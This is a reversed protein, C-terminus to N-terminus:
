SKDSGDEERRLKKLEEIVEVMYGNDPHTKRFTEEDEWDNDRLGNHHEHWCEKCHWMNGTRMTKQCCRCGGGMVIGFVM